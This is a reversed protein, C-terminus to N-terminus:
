ENNFGTNQDIPLITFDKDKLYKIVPELAKASEIHGPSNHFIIVANNKNKVQQIVYEAIQASKIGKIRSDM